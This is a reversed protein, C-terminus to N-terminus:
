QVGLSRAVERKLEDGEPMQDDAVPTGAAARFYGEMAATTIPGGLGDAVLTETNGDITVTKMGKDILAQQIKKLLPDQQSAQPQVAKNKTSASSTERASPDAEAVTVIVIERGHQSDMVLLKYTAAKASAKAEVLISGKAGEVSYTVDAASPHTSTWRASYNPMGGSVDLSASGGTRVTLNSSSVTMELGAKKLDVDCTKADEGGAANIMSIIEIVEEVLGKLVATQRLIEVNRPDSDLANATMTKSTQTEPTPVAIKNGIAALGGLSELLKSMDPSNLIYADRVQKEIDSLSSRLKGPASNLQLLAKRAPLLTRDALDIASRAESEAPLPQRYHGLLSDLQRAHADILDIKRRLADRQAYPEQLPQVAAIACDVARIGASYILRQPNSNLWNNATYGAAGALGLGLIESSGVSRIALDAAVASGAILGLGMWRENAISKDSKSTYRDRMSTGVAIANQLTQQGDYTRAVELDPGLHPQMSCAPLLGAVVAAVIVRSAFFPSIRSIHRVLKSM